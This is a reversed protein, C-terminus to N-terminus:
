LCVGDSYSTQLAVNFSGKPGSKKLRTREGELTDKYWLVGMEVGTDSRSNAARNVFAAKKDRQSWRSSNQNQRGSDSSSHLEAAPSCWCLKSRTLEARCLWLIHHSKQSTPKPLSWWFTCKMRWPFNGQLPGELVEPVPRHQTLCHHWDRPM